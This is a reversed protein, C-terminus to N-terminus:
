LLWFLTGGTYRPIVEVLVGPLIRCSIRAGPNKTYLPNLPTRSSMKTALDIHIQNFGVFCFLCFGWFVRYDVELQHNWINKLTWGSGQPLPVWKSSCIKGFPNSGCVCFVRFVRCVLFFCLFFVWLFWCVFGLFFLFFSYDDKNKNNPHRNVLFGGNSVGVNVLGFSTPSTKEGTALSWSIEVSPLYISVKGFNLLEGRFFSPQCVVKRKPHYM